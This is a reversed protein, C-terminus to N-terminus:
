RRLDEPTLSSVSLGDIEHFTDGQQVLRSKWASGGEVVRKIVYKGSIKDRSFTLGIGVLPGRYGSDYNTSLLSM